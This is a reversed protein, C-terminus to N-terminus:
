RTCDEWVLLERRRTRLEQQMKEKQGQTFMCLDADPTNDMFNINMQYVVYRYCLSLAKGAQLTPASHTPTDPIGDDECGGWGWLDMLGLYNGMLHTLTKGKNYRSEKLAEREVYEQDIVIGDTDLPLGPLQAYGAGSALNCVWINIIKAPTLADAGGTKASKVSQFSKFETSDTLVFDVSFQSCFTIGTDTALHGYLHRTHASNEFTKGNFDRILTQLQKEIDGKTLRTESTKHNVIHFALKLLLPRTDSNTALSSLNPTVKFGARELSQKYAANLYSRYPQGRLHLTTIGLALILMLHFNYRKNM